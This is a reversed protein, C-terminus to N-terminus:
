QQGRWPGTHPSPRGDAASWERRWQDTKPFPHSQCPPWDAMELLADFDDLEVKMVKEVEAKKQGEGDNDLVRTLVAEFVEEWEQDTYSRSPVAPPGQAKKAKKPGNCDSSIPKTEDANAKKLKDANKKRKKKHTLKDEHQAHNEKGKDMPAPFKPKMKKPVKPIKPKLPVAQTKLVKHEQEDMKILEKMENGTDNHSSQNSHAEKAIKPETESSSFSPM